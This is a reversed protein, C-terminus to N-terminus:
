ESESFCGQETLWETIEGQLSEPLTDFQDNNYVAIIQNMIDATKGKGKGKGKARSNTSKIETNNRIGKAVIEFYDQATRKSKGGTMVSDIFASKFIETQKAGVPDSKAQRLDIPKFGTKVIEVRVQELSDSASLFGMFAGGIKAGMEMVQENSIITKKTVKAGQSSTSVQTVMAGIANVQKTIAKTM